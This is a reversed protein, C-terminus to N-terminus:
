KTDYICIDMNNREVVCVIAMTVVATMLDVKDFIVKLIYKEFLQLTIKM